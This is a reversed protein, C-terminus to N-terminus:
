FLSEEGFKKVLTNALFIMVLNIVSKFFGVATVYGFNAGMVFASRYVYTDIIEGVSYVPASYLNFVQDFTNGFNLMQGVTLILLIAVTPRLGPWTINRIRQWRGAGDIDAAEYLEPNIGALAAIYIISDWGIEKWIHSLYLVPRFYLTSTLFSVSDGGLLVIIKNILGDQGLFNILIGSLVVWSIFHPFTFVTQYIKKAKPLTIEFLMIALIIPTPFHFALKGLSIVINNRFAAIFSSDNFIQRFNELGIWPSGLIGGKFTYQKFALTIGYIPAYAFVIYWVLVPLLM